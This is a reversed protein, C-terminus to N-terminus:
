AAPRPMTSFTLVGGVVLPALPEWVEWAGWFLLALGVLFVADRPDGAVRRFAAGCAVLVRRSYALLASITM